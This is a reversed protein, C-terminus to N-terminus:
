GSSVTGSPLPEGRSRWWSALFLVGPCVVVVWLLYPVASRPFDRTIPAGVLLALFAALQFAVAITAGLREWRWAIGLGLISLFLFIPPLAELWSYGEVAHPAAVGTTVWSWTYGAAMLLAYVIIPFSWIRAIRRMWKTTQDRRDNNAAV